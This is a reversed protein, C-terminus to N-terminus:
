KADKLKAEIAQAVAEPDIGLRRLVEDPKGSDAYRTVGFRVFRVALGEEALFEAVVAGLGTRVNHDEYTAVVKAGAAKRLVDRDPVAPSSMNVVAARIGKQALIERVEIARPLMPGMAVISVDTGERVFAAKGYEFEYGDAFFPAGDEGTVPLMKTRGMAILFNGEHAAAWRVARDTENPDAPVIVHFGFLSRFNGLYDICQHTKGDEGVNTGCHTVVVKLNTHNIDNLRHQNFAEDTGFVGFDAWFTLIGQTSVAGAMTATHHETIGSQIFSQPEVEAFWTTRVSSALDCDFVAMRAGRGDKNVEALDRLANGFAGRNDTKEDVGYTHPKGTRVKIAPLHPEVHTGPVFAARMKKYKELDNEVGLIELARTLDEEPLAAGHWKETNEMFAVGKSMVTRAIIVAPGEDCCVAERLAEYLKDFDNGDDIEIVHWGAARYQAAVDMPMVKRTDGSIQLYNRDVIAVLNALNYKAAFREAEVVQGKQQEGDGMVVFVNFDEALLRSSLAFGCGASLGQGLNGSSWEVGPVTREVHGEFLSGAQRFHAVAEDVNVFGLRGLVSYVGPSTHGHSVVIRDRAPDHIRGPAVDALSWLLLFAELSSMSGGPHGCGALTTMKLIDGRCLRALEVLESKTEGSLREAKFGKENM